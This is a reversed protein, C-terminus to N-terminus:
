HDAKGTFYGEPDELYALSDRISAMHDQELKGLYHFFAEEKPNTAKKALSFYFDAAEMEFQVAKNLCAIDDDDHQRTVDSQYNLKNLEEALSLDSEEITLEEPWQGTELMREHRKVIWKQHAFEEGALNTLLTKVVPNKSRAAEALYYKEERVENNIAIQLSSVRKM